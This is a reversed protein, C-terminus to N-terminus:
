LLTTQDYLEDSLYGAILEYRGTGDSNWRMNMDQITIVSGGISVYAGAWYGSSGTARGTVKTSAYVTWKGNHMYFQVSGNASKYSGMTHESEPRVTVFYWTYWASLTGEQAQPIGGPIERMMGSVAVAVHGVVGTISSGTFHKSAQSGYTGANTATLVTPEPAGMPHYCSWRIGFYANAGIQLTNGNRRIFFGVTAGQVGQPDHHGVRGRSKGYAHRETSTNNFMDRGGGTLGVPTIPFSRILKWSSTMTAVAVRLKICNSINSTSATEDAATFNAPSAPMNLWNDSTGYPMVLFRCCRTGDNQGDVFKLPQVVMDWSQNAGWEVHDTLLSNNVGYRSLMGMRSGTAYYFSGSEFAAQTHIDRLDTTTPRFCLLTNSRHAGAVLGKNPYLYRRHASYWTLGHTWATVITGLTYNRYIGYTDNSGVNAALSYSTSRAPHLAFSSGSSDPHYYPNGSSAAFFSRGNPENTGYPIARSTRIVIGM